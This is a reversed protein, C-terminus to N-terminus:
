RPLLHWLGSKRPHLLVSHNNLPEHPPINQNMTTRSFSLNQPAEFTMRCIHIDVYSIYVWIHVYM